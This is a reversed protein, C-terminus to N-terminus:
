SRKSKEQFLFQFVQQPILQGVSSSLSMTECDVIGLELEVGITPSDNAAFELKTM